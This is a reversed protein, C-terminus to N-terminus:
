LFVTSSDTMLKQFEDFEKQNKHYNIEIQQILGNRIVIQSFGLIKTNQNPAPLKVEFDCHFHIDDDSSPKGVVVTASSNLMRVREAYEKFSQREGLNLYYSFEPSILYSVKDPDNGESIENHFIEKLFYDVIKSNDSM